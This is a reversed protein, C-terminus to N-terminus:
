KDIAKTMSKKLIHKNAQHLCACCMYGQASLTDPKAMDTHRLHTSQRVKVKALKPEGKQSGAASYALVLASHSQFDMPTTPLASLCAQKNAM